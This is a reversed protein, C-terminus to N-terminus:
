PGARVCRVYISSTKSGFGVVGNNFSVAWVRTTNPVYTTSTWHYASVTGPFYASNIYPAASEGYNVIGQLEIANPLRWDTYGAFSSGECFLLANAWTAAAGSNCGAGAGDSAWM